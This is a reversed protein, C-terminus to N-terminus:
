RSKMRRSRDRSKERNSQKRARKSRRVGPPLARAGPKAFKPDAAVARLKGAVDEVPINTPPKIKKTVLWETLLPCAKAHASHGAALNALEALAIFALADSLSKVPAALRDKLFALNKAAPDIKIAFALDQAVLNDFPGTGWIDDSKM